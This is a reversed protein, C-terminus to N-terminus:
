LYHQLVYRALDRTKELELEKRRREQEGRQVVGKGWEMKSAEKEERIRRARAEAAREAKTDIKRGSTDRYVTEEQPAVSDKSVVPARMRALQEKTLVGGMPKSPQSEEQVVLPREDPEPEPSQARLWGGSGSTGPEARRKKFSRDSAVVAGPAGLEDGEEEQAVASSGWALDDDLLNLAGGGATDSPPVWPKKKKKTPGSTSSGARSLIADAKTGSMYNMALYAQKGSISSSNAM